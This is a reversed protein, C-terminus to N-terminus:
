AYGVRTLQDNFPVFEIRDPLDAISNIQLTPTIHQQDYGWPHGSMVLVSRMNVAKASMVDDRM